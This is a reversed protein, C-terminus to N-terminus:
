AYLRRILRPPLGLYYLALCALNRASRSLWGGRRYRAASTIARAELLAIRHRGIRRVLDVDEMLPQLKFGGLREYFARAILLGQDGYPLGLARTRWAVLRELRRAAASADDLAFRFVAARERNAPLAIFRSAITAWGPELRTDAHLFLLWEGRAVAAGAALQGGRSPPVVLLTAGQARALAATGDVSGGDALILEHDLGAAAAEALSALVVGLTESANLAPIVISLRPV